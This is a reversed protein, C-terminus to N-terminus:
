ILTAHACLLCRLPFSLPLPRPLPLPALHLLSVSARQRLDGEWGQSLLPPHFLFLLTFLASSFSPFALPASSLRWVCWVCVCVCVCVCDGCSARARIHTRSRRLRPFLVRPSIPFALATSPVNPLKQCYLLDRKVSYYTEKSMYQYMLFSKTHVLRSTTHTNDRERERQTHTHTGRLVACLVWPLPLACPTAHRLRTPDHMCPPAHRCTDEEEYSM